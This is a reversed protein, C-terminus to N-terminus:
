NYGRNDEEGPQKKPMVAKPQKVPEKKGGATKQKNEKPKEPSTIKKNEEKPKSGVPKAAQGGGDGASVPPSSARLRPNPSVNQKNKEPVSAPDPGTVSITASDKELVYQRVPLTRVTTDNQAEVALRLLKEVNKRVQVSDIRTDGYQRSVVVQGAYQVDIMKYKDFGTQRLVQRYFVMLRNLKREMNNGDGLKVVHNGVVPIMEFTYGSTIDVQAVQASWFPDSSIFNATLRIGNLLTSDKSALKTKEPFGTFVPVKASHKDSLPIRRGASDIYFSQGATTFIRAVPQKEAVSVHLVEQNDFWLEADSIWSNKELQQELQHLNFSTVQRGRISGGAFKLLLQEVDKEDMFRIDRGNKLSIKYNNCKERKENRMAALLLTLM